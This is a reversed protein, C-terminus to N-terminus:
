GLGFAVAVLEAYLMSVMLIDCKLDVDVVRGLVALPRKVLLQVLKEGASM